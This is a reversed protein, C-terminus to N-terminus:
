AASSSPKSGGKWDKVLNELVQVSKGPGNEARVKPMLGEAALRYKPTEEIERV